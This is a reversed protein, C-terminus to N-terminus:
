PAHEGTREGATAIRRLERFVWRAGLNFHTEEVSDGVLDDQDFEAELWGLLQQGAPTAAVARAAQYKPSSLLRARMEAQRQKM